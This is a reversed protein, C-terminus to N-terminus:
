ARQPQGGPQQLRRWACYSSRGKGPLLESSLRVTGKVRIEESAGEARSQTQPPLPLALDQIVLTYPLYTPIVPDAWQGPIAM